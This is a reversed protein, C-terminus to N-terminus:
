DVVDPLVLLDVLGRDLARRSEPLVDTVPLRLPRPTSGHGSLAM